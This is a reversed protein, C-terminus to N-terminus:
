LEEILQPEEGTLLSIIEENRNHKGRFYESVNTKDQYFTRDYRLNVLLSKIKDQAETNM